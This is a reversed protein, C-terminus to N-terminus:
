IQGPIWIFPRQATSSSCPPAAPRKQAKRHCSPPGATVGGSMAGHPQAWGQGRGRGPGPGKPLVLMLLRDRSSASATGLAGRRPAPPRIRHQTGTVGMSPVTPADSPPGMEALPLGPGAM